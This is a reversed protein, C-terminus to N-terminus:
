IEKRDGAMDTLVGLQAMKVLAWGYGPKALNHASHLEWKVFRCDKALGLFDLFHASAYGAVGCLCNRLNVCLNRFIAM